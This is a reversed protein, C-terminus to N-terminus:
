RKNSGVTSKVPILMFLIFNTGSIRRDLTYSGEEKPFILLHKESACSASLGTKAGRFCFINFNLITPAM